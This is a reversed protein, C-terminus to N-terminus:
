YIQTTYMAHALWKLAFPSSHTNTGKGVSYASCHLCKQLYAIMEEMQTPKLTTTANFPVYTNTSM